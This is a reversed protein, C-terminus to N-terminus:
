KTAATYQDLIPKCRRALPFANKVGTNMEEIQQDVYNVLQPLNFAPWEQDLMYLMELGRMNQRLQCPLLASIAVATAATRNLEPDAMMRLGRHHLLICCVLDEPLHWRHALSAGAYSHTWGFREQEFECISAPMNTREDLYQVYDDYLDNTLVPLLYDAIMGGAFALDPDTNLLKAVERAFVAKQLCANWVELQNLLKSKKAKVAAQMGTTIVFTNCQRQGLLSIAQQINRAKHRLGIASSNVYRLMETALGTDTEIIRALEKPSSDPDKSKEIYETVAHPLAPLSITPPLAEMTSNGLERELIGVWDVTSNESM